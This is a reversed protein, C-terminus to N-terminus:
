YEYTSFTKEVWKNHAIQAEHFEKEAYMRASEINISTEQNRMITNVNYDISNLVGKIETMTNALNSLMQHIDNVSRIVQNRFEKQEYYLVAEKMNDALGNRFAHQLIAVCDIYRYDPPVINSQSYCQDLIQKIEYAKQDCEAAQEILNNQEKRMKAVNEQVYQYQDATIRKKAIEPSNIKAIIAARDKELTSIREKIYAEAKRQAKKKKKSTASKFTVALIVFIIPMGIANLLGSEELRTALEPSSISLASIIAVSSIAFILASIILAILMSGIVSGNGISSLQYKTEEDLTSKINEIKKNLQDLQNKLNVEEQSMGKETRYRKDFSTWKESAQSGIKRAKVRLKDALEHLSYIKIEMALADDVFDSIQQKSLATNNEQNM